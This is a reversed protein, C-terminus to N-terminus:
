WINLLMFMKYYLNAVERERVRLSVCLSKKEVHNPMRKTCLFPNGIGCVCKCNQNSRCCSFYSQRELTSFQQCLDVSVICQETYCVCYLRFGIGCGFVFLFAWVVLESYKDRAIQFFFAMSLHFLFLCFILCCFFFFVSQIPLFVVTLLM